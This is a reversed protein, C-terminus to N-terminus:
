SWAQDYLTGCNSIDFVYLGYSGTPIYIRSNIDDIFISQAVGSMTKEGIKKPQLPDSVDFVQLYRTWGTGGILYAFNDKVRVHYAWYLNDDFFGLEEPSSPESLDFIRFGLDSYVVYAYPGPGAERKHCHILTVVILVSFIKIFMIKQM